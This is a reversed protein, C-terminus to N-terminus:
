HPTVPSFMIWLVSARGGPSLSLPLRCMYIWSMIFAHCSMVHCSPCAGSFENLYVVPERGSIRDSQAAVEEERHFFILHSSFASSIYVNSKLERQLSDGGMRGHHHVPVCDTGCVPYQRLQYHWLQTWDLIRQVSHWQSVVPGSTGCWLALWHRDWRIFFFSHFLSLPM